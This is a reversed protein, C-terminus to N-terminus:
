IIKTLDGNLITDSYIISSKYQNPKLAKLRIIKSHLKAKKIQKKLQGTFNNQDYGLCIINPRYRRIVAYKDSLNGLVVKDALNLGLVAKQRQKEDNHPLKGKVQKVTRDRAIIVILSDGQKKAQKLFYEHGPHILDFTGFAMVTKMIKKHHPKPALRKEAEDLPFNPM